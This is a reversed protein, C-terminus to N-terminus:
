KDEVVLEIKRDKDNLEGTTIAYRNGFSNIRINDESIGNNMLFQKIELARNDTLRQNYKESGKIDAYTKIIFTSSKDKNSIFDFLKETNIRDLTKKNSEYYLEITNTNEKTKDHVINNPPEVQPIDRILLDYNYVKPSKIDEINAVIFASENGDVSIRYNGVEIIPIVFRGDQPYLKFKRSANTNTNTCTISLESSIPMKMNRVINYVYGSIFAYNGQSLEEPLDIKYIGQRKTTEDYSVYYAQNGFATLWINNDDKDTNIPTGLNTPATWKDWSDDERECYYIDYGGVGGPRNSAFFLTRDNMALHPSLEDAPTNINIPKPESWINNASNHHSYYLDMGGKGEPKALAIILTKLDHSLTASYINADNRYGVINLKQPKSWKGNEKYIFSFSKNSKSSESYDGSILATRGDPSLYLLVDSKDTNIGGAIKQPISWASTGISRSFWIEDLDETSAVNEFHFKRDFYLISEDFDCVPMIAPQYSNINEPLRTKNLNDDAIASSTLAITLLLALIKM